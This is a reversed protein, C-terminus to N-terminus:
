LESTDKRLYKGFKAPLGLTQIGIFTMKAFLNQLVM